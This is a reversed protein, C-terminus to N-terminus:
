FTVYNFETTITKFGAHFLQYHLCNFSHIYIFSNSVDNKLQWEVQTKNSHSNLTISLKIIENAFKKTFFKFYWFIFNESFYKFTKQSLFNIILVFLVCLFWILIRSNYNQIFRFRFVFNCHYILIIITEASRWGFIYM